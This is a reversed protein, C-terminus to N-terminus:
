FNYFLLITFYFEFSYSEKHETIFARKDVMWLISSVVPRCFMFSMDHLKAWLINDRDGAHELLIVVKILAPTM